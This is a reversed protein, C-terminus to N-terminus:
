RSFLIGERGTHSKDDENVTEVRIDVAQRPYQTLLQIASGSSDRAEFM